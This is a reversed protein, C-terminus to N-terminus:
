STPISIAIAGLSDMSIMTQTQQRQFACCSTLAMAHLPLRTLPGVKKLRKWFRVMSRWALKCVALFKRRRKHQRRQQHRTKQDNDGLAEVSSGRPPVSQAESGLDGSETALAATASRRLRPCAVHSSFGRPLQANAHLAANSGATAIARDSRKSCVTAATTTSTTGTRASQFMCSSYARRRNRAPVEWRDSQPACLHQGGLHQRGLMGIPFGALRGNGVLLQM